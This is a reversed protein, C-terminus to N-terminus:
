VTQSKTDAAQGARLNSLVADETYADVRDIIISWDYRTEMKELARKALLKGLDPEKVLRIVQRAFDEPKYPHAMLVDKGNEATCNFAPINSIVAPKGSAMAELVIVGLSAAVPWTPCIHIDATQFYEPKEDLIPGIFHVHPKLENEVLSEFYFRLPGGGALILRSNPVEKRIQRFADILVSVGNRFEMRGIFFLNLKDDDFQDVKETCDRYWSVPVGNPIVKFDCDFWGSYQKACVSSVAILGDFDNMFRSLHRNFLKYFLPKKKMLTHLHGVIPCDAYRQILLPLIPTLQCHIHIVDFKEQALMRQVKSGLFLGFAVKALSSNAFFPISRGLRIIKFGEKAYTINHEKGVNSTILSVDYGKKAFEVCAFHVDGSLGGMHPYYYESVVAVKLPKSSDIPRYKKRRNTRGIKWISNVALTAIIYVGVFSNYIMWRLKWLAYRLKEFFPRTNVSDPPPVDQGIPAENETSKM